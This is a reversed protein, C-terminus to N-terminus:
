SKPEGHLNDAVSFGREVATRVADVTGFVKLCTGLFDNLEVQWVQVGATKEMEDLAVMAPTWGTTELIGLASNTLTSDALTSLKSM